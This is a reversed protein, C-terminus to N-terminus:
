GSSALVMAHDKEFPDLVIVDQVDYGAKEIIKVQDAYVKKPNERVDVSRAKVTLMMYGGKKMFHKANRVIIEAQDPQAVDSFIVDVLPVYPTYSSPNRADGLIPSINDRYRTVKDLLDRVARPAFDLGWVHGKDGIIDSVHSVTTGSAVGLYLVWGEPKIPMYDIDKMILAGLKSRTPNWSRYEINNINFVPEGYYNIGPTLNKTVLIEQNNQFTKFISPFIEKIQM